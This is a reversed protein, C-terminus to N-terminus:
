DKIMPNSSDYYVSEKAIRNSYEPYYEPSKEARPFRLLSNKRKLGKTSNNPTSNGSKFHKPSRFDLKLEGYM